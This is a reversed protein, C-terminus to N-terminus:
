VSVDGDFCTLKSTYGMGLRGPQNWPNVEGRRRGNGGRKGGLSCRRKM